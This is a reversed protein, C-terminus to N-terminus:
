NKTKLKQFNSIMVKERTAMRDPTSDSRGKAAAKRRIEKLLEFNNPDAKEYYRDYYRPARFDLGKETHVRGSPYVDDSFRKIWAASIGQGYRGGRSMTRYEPIYGDPLKENQNKIKKQVYGAVYAVSKPTVDGVYTFGHGWVRDLLASRSYSLTGLPDSKFRDPFNFGFIIAHHHARGNQSGYEGVQFFKIKPVHNRLRKMFAVFDAPRLSGPDKDYTLTIFCSDKHLQAEHTLRITWERSSDVKCGVCKGCPLPIIEGRISEKINWTISRKGDLDRSVYPLLPNFCSM